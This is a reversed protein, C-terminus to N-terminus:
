KNCIKLKARFLRYTVNPPDFTAINGVMIEPEIRPDIFDKVLLVPTHALEHTTRDTAYGWIPAGVGYVKWM